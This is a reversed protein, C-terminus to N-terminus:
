EITRHLAKNKRATQTVQEMVAHYPRQMIAGCWGLLSPQKMAPLGNAVNYLVCSSLPVAVRYEVGDRFINM